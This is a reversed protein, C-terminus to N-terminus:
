GNLVCIPERIGTLEAFNGLKKLLMETIQTEEAVILLGDKTQLNSKLILGVRLENFTVM